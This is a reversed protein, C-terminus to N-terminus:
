ENPLDVTVALSVTVNGATILSVKKAGSNTKLFEFLEGDSTSLSYSKVWQNMNQRGQTAVSTVRTWNGMDVQLWQYKNQNAPMWVGNTGTGSSLFHLRGLKPVTTPNYSSSATINSDSLLGSQM